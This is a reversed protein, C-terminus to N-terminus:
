KKRQGLIYLPVMHARENTNIISGLVVTTDCCYKIDYAGLKIDIHDSKKILFM